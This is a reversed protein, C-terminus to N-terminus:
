YSNIFRVVRVGKPLKTIDVDWADACDYPSHRTIATDAIKVEMGADDPAAGDFLKDLEPPPSIGAAKCAKWAAVKRQYDADPEVFGVIRTSMSM